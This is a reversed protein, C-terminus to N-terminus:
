MGGGELSVLHTSEEQCFQSGPSQGSIDSCGSKEEMSPVPWFLPYTSVEGTAPALFSLSALVMDRELDAPGEKAALPVSFGPIFGM